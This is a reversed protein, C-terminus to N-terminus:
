DTHEKKTDPELKSIYPWIGGIAWKMHYAGLGMSDSLWLLQATVILLYSGIGTGIHWWAHLELLLSGPFGLVQKWKALRDCLWNDINWLMFAFLFVSFGMRGCLKLDHCIKQETLNKIKLKKISYVMRTIGLITIMGFSTHHFVPNPYVLYVITVVLANIVLFIKMVYNYISRTRRLQCKSQDFAVYVILTTAYTMPLEDLLQFEYLLTAHFAFSGVGVLFISMQCLVLIFPLKEERNKKIGYAAISLFAFNSITNWFEAIYNTVLYNAESIM